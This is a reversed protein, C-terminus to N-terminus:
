GEDPLSLSSLWHKVLAADRHGATDLVEFAQKGLTLAKIKNGSMDQVKALGWLGRGEWRAVHVLTLSQEFYQLAQELNSLLLYMEGLSCLAASLAARDGVERYLRESQRYEELARHYDGQWQYTDGLGRHIYAIAQKDAVETAIQLARELCSLSQAYEKKVALVEGLSRLYYALGRQNNAQELYAKSRRLYAEATELDGQSLKVRGIGRLAEGLANHNQCKEAFDVAKQLFVLAKESHYQYIELFGTNFYVDALIWNQQINSAIAIAQVFATEADSYNGSERQHIGIEGLFIAQINTEGLREGTKVGRELLTIAIQWLGRLHLYKGTVALNQAFSIVEPWCNNRYAYDAAQVINELALDLENLLAVSAAKEVMALFYKLHIAAIVAYNDSTRLLLQSYKGLLPHFRYGIKINQLLNRTTLDRLCRTILSSDHFVSTAPAYQFCNMVWEQAIYGPAFIGLIQFLEASNKELSEYSLSFSLRISDEKRNTSEVNLTDIRTEPDRLSAMVKDLGDIKALASAIEIALPLNGTLDALEYALSPVIEPILANILELADYLELPNLPMIHLARLSAAISMQRTTILLSVGDPIAKRLLHTGELWAYESTNRVDDFIALMRGHRSMYNKIAQRVAQARIDKSPLNVLDARDCLQAWSALIPLPDGQNSPLDAWLIGGPFQHSLQHTLETVLSTKGAGAMGHLVTIEVTQPNATLVIQQLADLEKRRGVFHDLRAVTTNFLLDDPRSQSSASIDLAAATNIHQLLEWRQAIRYIPMALITDRGAGVKRIVSEIQLAVVAQLAESFIPAGSYGGEGLEQSRLRFLRNGPFDQPDFIGVFSGTGESRDQLTVGYGCSRFDGGVVERALSIPLPYHKAPPHTLKLVAFDTGTEPQYDWQIKYAERPIDEAFRIEVRNVPNSTGLIHAATLLHGTDTVLWATGRIQGDILIACIAQDIMSGSSSSMSKRRREQFGLDNNSEFRM